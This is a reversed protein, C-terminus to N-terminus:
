PASSGFLTVLARAAKEVGLALVQTVLLKRPATAPLAHIESKSSVLGRGGTVRWPVKSLSRKDSGAHGRQFNPLTVWWLCQSLLKSKQYTRLVQHFLATALPVSYPATGPLFRTLVGRLVNTM